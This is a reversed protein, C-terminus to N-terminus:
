MLYRYNVMMGFANKMGRPSLDAMWNLRWLVAGNRLHFNAPVSFICQTRRRDLVHRPPPPPPPPCSTGVSDLAFGRRKENFLYHACM